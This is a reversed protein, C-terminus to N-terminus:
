GKPNPHYARAANNMVDIAKKFAEGAILPTCSGLDKNGWQLVYGKGSVKFIPVTLAATKTNTRARAAGTAAM